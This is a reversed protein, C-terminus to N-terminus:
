SDDYRNLHGESGDLWNDSFGEHIDPLLITPSKLLWVYQLM